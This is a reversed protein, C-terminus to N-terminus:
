ARLLEEDDSEFDDRDESGEVQSRRKKVLSVVFGIVFVQAIFCFMTVKANPSLSLFTAQLQFRILTNNTPPPPPVCTHGKTPGSIGGSQALPSM